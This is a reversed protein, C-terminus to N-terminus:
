KNSKNTIAQKICKFTYFRKGKQTNSSQTTATSLTIGRGSVCLVSCVQLAAGVEPGSVGTWVAVM